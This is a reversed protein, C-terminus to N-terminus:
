SITKRVKGFLNPRDSQSYYINADTQIESSTSFFAKKEYKKILSDIIIQQPNGTNLEAINRYSLVEYLKHTFYPKYLSDTVKLAGSGITLLFSKPDTILSDFLWPNTNITKYYGTFYKFQNNFNYFGYSLIAFKNKSILQNKGTYQSKLYLRDGIRNSTLLSNGTLDKIQLQTQGTYEFNNSVFAIQNIYDSISNNTLLRKHKFRFGISNGASYKDRLSDYTEATESQTFCTSICNSYDPIGNWDNIGKIYVSSGVSLQNTPFHDAYKEFNVTLDNSAYSVVTGYIYISPYNIDQVVVIDGSSFLKSSEIKITIQKSQTASLSTKNIVETTYSVYGDNVDIESVLVNFMSYINSSSTTSRKLFKTAYNGFSSSNLILYNKNLGLETDEQVSITETGDTLVSFDNVVGGNSLTSGAVLSSANGTYLNQFTLQQSSSYINIGSNANYYGLNVTSLNSANQQINLAYGCDNEDKIPITLQSAFTQIDFGDTIDGERVEIRPQFSKEGLNGAKGANLVILYDNDPLYKVQAYTTYKPLNNPDYLSVYKDRISFPM